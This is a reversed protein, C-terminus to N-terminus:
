RIDNINGFYALVPYDDSPLYQEGRVDKLVEFMLSGDRDANMRAHDRNNAISLVIDNTIGFATPQSGVSGLLGILARTKGLDVFIADGSLDGIWRGPVDGAGLTDVWREKLITSGFRETGDVLVTLVIRFYFMYSRTFIGCAAVSSCPLVLAARLLDRRHFNFSTNM